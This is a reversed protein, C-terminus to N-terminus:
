CFKSLVLLINTIKVRKLSIIFECYLFVGSVPNLLFVCPLFCKTVM